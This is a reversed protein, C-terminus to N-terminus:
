EHGGGAARGASDRLTGSEEETILRGAELVAVLQGGAKVVRSIYHHMHAGLSESPDAGMDGPEIDAVGDVADVIMGATHGHMALVLIRTFYTYPAPAMGLRKRMDLVPIVAGRLNVVGEVFSPADPLPTVEVMRVVETVESVPLAYFNGGLTFRVLQLSM